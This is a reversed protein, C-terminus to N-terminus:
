QLQKACSNCRIQASSSSSTSCHDTLLHSTTLDALWVQERIRRAKAMEQNALEILYKAEKRREEAMAKNERAVKMMEEAEFKLRLAELSADEEDEIMASKSSNSPPFLELEELKQHHNHHSFTNIIMMNNNNNGYQHFDATTRHIRPEISMLNLNMASKSPTERERRFSKPKCSDQHEIFTEVRSFVRGCDCSHGKTGCTKLHAKYDSLVAYAKGCKDCVWEKHDCHKRRFHKKIGVLDGLAHSPDHHVCSPEPCVYVRKRAAEQPPSCGEGTSRAAAKQPQWPVKHRRRHMQLNQERHFSMNCTECVYRDSELLKEPSLYIVQANPDPTGAPKRKRKTTTCGHTIEQSFFNLRPSSSSSSSSLYISHNPLM